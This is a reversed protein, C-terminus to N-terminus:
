RDIGRRSSDHFTSANFWESISANFWESVISSRGTALPGARRRPPASLDLSV